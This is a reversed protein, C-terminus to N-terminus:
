YFATKNVVFVVYDNAGGMSLNTGIKRAEAIGGATLEPISDSQNHAGHKIFDVEYNTM